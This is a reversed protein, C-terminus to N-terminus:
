DLPLAAACSGSQSSSSAKQGALSCVLVAVSASNKDAEACTFLLRGPGRVGTKAVAGAVGKMATLIGAVGQAALITEPEDERDEEQLEDADVALEEESVLM